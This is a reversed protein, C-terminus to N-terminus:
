GCLSNCSAKECAEMDKWQGAEALESCPPPHQVRTQYMLIYHAPLNKEQIQQRYTMIHTHLQTCYVLVNDLDSIYTTTVHLGVEYVSYIDAM